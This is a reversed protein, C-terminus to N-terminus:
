GRRSLLLGSAGLLGALALVTEFGPQPKAEAAQEKPETAPEPGPGAVTELVSESPGSVPIFGNEEAIMQGEPSVMFDIFAKAGPKPEGFTYFYLKRSLEYTGDRISQASPMTGDLAITRVNGGEAYSYGLYGIAKDSGAVATKVEASGLATTIVGPTEAKKDDMIDENFTDRTGSGQERAIVYIQADPGGVEKWNKVEGNYIGKIQEKSLDVVGADYVQPSVVMVIGDYGILFEQFNDGYKAIEDATIERSAMAIDLRGESIGTIGAGTGGGTISIRYNNQLINFAEAGGEALPLVTSSGAVAVKEVATAPVALGVLLIALL